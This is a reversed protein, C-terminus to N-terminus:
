VDGPGRRLVTCYHFRPYDYSAGRHQLRAVVEVQAGKHSGTL